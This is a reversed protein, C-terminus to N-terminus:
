GGLRACLPARRDPPRRTRVVATWLTGGLRVILWPADCYEVRGVLLACAAAPFRVGRHGVAVSRLGCTVIVPAQVRGDHPSSGVRSFTRGLLPGGNAISSLQWSGDGGATVGCADGFPPGSPRCLGVSTKVPPRAGPGGLRLPLRQHARCDGALRIGRWRFTPSTWPPTGLGAPDDIGFRLASSAGQVVGGLLPVRPPTRCGRVLIAALTTSCLRARM